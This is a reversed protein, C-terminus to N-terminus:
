RTSGVAVPETAAPAHGTTRAKTAAAVAALAIPMTLVLFIQGFSWGGALILSGVTAGFIAGFRGIGTMVSMGTARMETPYFAAALATWGTNASNICFGLGFLLATLVHGDAPAAGVLLAFFGAGCLMGVLTAHGGFRDMGWGITLNGLTGGVQMMAGIVAAESLSFGADRVMIPLWSNLWYVTLLNMFLGAWLALTPLRNPPAVILAVANRRRDAPESVVFVTREDAAGPAIRNVVAVLATRHEPRLVLFRISEPLLGICVIGLLIPLIGGVVFVSQWGYHGVLAASLFGGGAAGLTLGSYLLSVFLSRRRQPAYEAVLTAANPQAAGLGLGTLFRFLALEWVGTSLASLLSMTGFVVMAAIIVRRRGVRDAAPGGAIAGLAMGLLGAVLAPGLAERSIGWAHTLAPAIFGVAAVDLGDLVLVGLCLAFVRWQFRGVRRQDVFDQIDIRASAAM